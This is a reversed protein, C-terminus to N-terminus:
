LLDVNSSDQQLNNLHLLHLTFASGDMQMWGAGTGPARCAVCNSMRIPNGDRAREYHKTVGTSLTPTTYASAALLYLLVRTIAYPVILLLFVVTATISRPDWSPPIPSHTVLILGTRRDQSWLSNIISLVTSAVTSYLPEHLPLAPNALAETVLVVARPLRPHQDMLFNWCNAAQAIASLAAVTTLHNEVLYQHFRAVHPGLSQDYAAHLGAAAVLEEATTARPLLPIDLLQRAVDHHSPM